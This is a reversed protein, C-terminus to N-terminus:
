IQITYPKLHFITSIHRKKVVTLLKSIIRLISSYETRTQQPEAETWQDKAEIGFLREVELYKQHM